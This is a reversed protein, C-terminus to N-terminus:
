PLLREEFADRRSRSLKLETGETLVVLHDGHTLPRVEEVWGMNVVASRHIRFFGLPGLQETLSTLSARVLLSDSRRHLRAYPGEAEIWSIAHPDLILKRAGDMIIVRDRSTQVPLPPLGRGTRSKVLKLIKRAEDDRLGRRVVEKAREVSERLREDTFPKLVYDIARVEFARVAYSDYATVLITVPLDLGLTALVEFGDMGPMQVDLLILDPRTRRIVDPADSGWTEALVELEPDEHLLDVMTRRALGEDEVVVVGIM